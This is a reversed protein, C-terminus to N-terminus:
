KGSISIDKLFHWFHCVILKINYDVWIPYFVNKAKVMFTVVGMPEVMQYQYSDLSTYCSQLFTQFHETLNVIHM